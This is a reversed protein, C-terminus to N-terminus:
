DELGKQIMGDVDHDLDIIPIIKDLNDFEGETILNVSGGGTEEVNIDQYGAFSFGWKKAAWAAIYKRAVPVTLGKYENSM